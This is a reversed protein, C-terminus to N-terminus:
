VGIGFRSAIGRASRWMRWMMFGRTGLKVISGARMAVLVAAAGVVLLPHSKVYRVAILGRDLIGAPTELVVAAVALDERQRRAREILQAKRATIDLLADM